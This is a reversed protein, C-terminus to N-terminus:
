AITAHRPPSISIAEPRPLNQNETIEQKLKLLVQKRTEGRALLNQLRFRLRVAAKEGEPLLPADPTLTQAQGTPSLREANGVIVWVPLVFVTSSKSSGKQAYAIAVKLPQDKLKVEVDHLKHIDSPMLTIADARDEAPPEALGCPPSLLVLEVTLLAALGGSVFLHTRM